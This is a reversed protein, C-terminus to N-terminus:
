IRSSESACHDDLLIESIGGALADLLSMTEAGLSGPTLSDSTCPVIEEIRRQPRHVIPNVPPININYLIRTTNQLVKYSMIFVNQNWTPQSGRMLILYCSIEACIYPKVAVILIALIDLASTHREFRRDLVM